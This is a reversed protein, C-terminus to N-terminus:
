GADTSLRVSEPHGALAAPTQFQNLVFAGGIAIVVAATVAILFVRM